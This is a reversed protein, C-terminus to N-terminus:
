QSMLEKLKTTALDYYKEGPSSMDIIQQFSQRALDNQQLDEHVIGQDYLKKCEAEVKDLLNQRQTAIDQNNPDAQAALNYLRIADKENGAQLAAAAKAAAAQAAQSLIASIRTAAAQARKHFINLPDTELSLITQCTQQGQLLGNVDDPTNMAEAAALPQVLGNMQRLRSQLDLLPQANPSQQLGTDIAKLAEAIDGNQYSVMAQNLYQAIQRTMAIQDLAQKADVYYVSSTPISKLLPEAMDLQQHSLDDQAQALNQQAQLESNAQALRRQLLESQPYTTQAKELLEKADNWNRSTFALQANEVYGVVAQLELAKSNDPYDRLVQNVLDKAKDYDENAAAQSAMTLINAAEIEEQVQEVAKKAEVRNPDRTLAAEYEALANTLEGQEEYAQGQRIDRGAYDPPRLFKALLAIVVVVGVTILTTKTNKRKQRLDVTEFILTSVGLKIKQGNSLKNKQVKVGDLFTGNSSKLDEIYYDEGEQVIQAHATSIADDVLVVNNNLGRGITLPGEWNRFVGGALPGETIRVKVDLDGIEKKQVVAQGPSKEELDAASAVRTKDDDADGDDRSTKDLVFKIRTAGIGIEDGDRLEKKTTIKEDNLTTGNRSGNDVLWFAGSEFVVNAHERSALAEDLPLSCSPSRGMVFPNAAIAVKSILKRDKTVQLVAKM